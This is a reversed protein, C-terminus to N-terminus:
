HSTWSTSCPRSVNLYSYMFEPSTPNFLIPAKTSTDHHLDKAVAEYLKEHSHIGAHPHDNLTIRLKRKHLEKTFGQPDPFYKKEWTYGTWGAHPVNDGHVIHWDMDIVACSLPIKAEEFKDMLELYETDSYDKYRSWWNGLSYRPLLPQHGSIAFFSKMARRYDFGYSFLYGDIRDGERRPAIWGDDTFLMTDSDDLVSYGARSLIGPELACRGNVEDLTRATGGLNQPEEGYRWDAGWLTNKNGIFSVVLGWRDFRKKNYTVQYSATRIELKDATDSVTYEPKPFRRNIAFTSARDEFIGDESWEYRLVTDSIITFRFTAGAVVSALNAVPDKPFKYKEM